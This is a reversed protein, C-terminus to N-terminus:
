NTLRILLDREARFGAAQPDCLVAAEASELAASRRGISRLAYAANAQALCLEPDLELARDWAALAAGVRYDYFRHNGAWLWDNADATPQSAAADASQSRERWQGQADAIYEVREPHFILGTWEWLRPDRETQNTVQQQGDSTWTALDTGPAAPLSLSPESILREAIAGALLWNGEVSPHCHDYVFRYDIPDTGEPGRFLAEADLVGLVGPEGEFALIVESVEPVIRNPYEAWRRAEKLWPLAEKTRGQSVLSQALLHMARPDEFLQLGERSLKERGALDHLELGEAQEMLANFREGKKGRRPFWAPDHFDNPAPNILFSPIGRAQALAVLKGINHRYTRAAYDRELEGIRARQNRPISELQDLGMAPTAAVPDLGPVLGLKQSEQTSATRSENRDPIPPPETQGLLSRLVQHIRLGELRQNLLLMRTYRRHESPPKFSKWSSLELLENHGSYVLILDWDSADLVQRGAWLIQQSSWAITGLNIVQIERDPVARQLLQQLRHPFAAPELVGYGHAASGGFVAIRFANQPKTADFPRFHHQQGAAMYRTKGDELPREFWLPPRLIHDAFWTTTRDPAGEVGALRLSIETGGLVAVLAIASFLLRQWLSPKRRARGAARDPTESM